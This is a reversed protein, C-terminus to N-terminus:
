STAEGAMAELQQTVHELISGQEEGIEGKSEALWKLQMTMAALTTPRAALIAEQARRARQGVLDCELGAGGTAHVAEWAALEQDVCAKVMRWGYRGM